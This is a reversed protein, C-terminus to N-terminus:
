QFAATLATADGRLWGKDSTAMCFLLLFFLSLGALYCFGKRRRHDKQRGRSVLNLMVGAVFSSLKCHAEGQSLLGSSTFKSNFSWINIMPVCRRRKSTNFSHTVSNQSPNTEELSIALPRCSCMLTTRVPTRLM